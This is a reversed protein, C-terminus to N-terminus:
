NNTNPDPSWGGGLSKYLQAMASLLDSRTQVLSLEANFLSREADLVELFTSIGAEYRDSSLELRRREAVVNAQLAAVQKKLSAVSVLADEVERFANQVARQYAALAAQQQAEAAQVGARIRGANFIPAAVRPAFSWAKSAGADFLDNLEYSELGLAATLSITPFYAARAAGINANAAILLQEAELIDPRRLLLTSPLGAPIEPLTPAVVEGPSAPIPGPNRGLLVSIANQTLGVAQELSAITALAAHVQTEAQRVDLESVIGEGNDFKNETIQLSNTRSEYTRHSIALQEELARLNFYTGALTAVLTIHVTRRGQESALLQARAAETLRRLRGWIDVEYSLLGTVSFSGATTDTLGSRGRTWAAGADVTPLLASRQARYGALSEEIRSAAIRLDLNSSLATTILNTLVPDRYYDWWHVDALSNTTATGFRWEGPIALDPKRYDPGLKCGALFLACGAFILFRRNL